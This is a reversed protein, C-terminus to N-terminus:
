PTSSSESPACRVKETSMYGGNLLGPDTLADWVPTTRSAIALAARQKASDCLFTGFQCSTVHFMLSMLYRSNFEFATPQQQTLQWVAFQHGFALWEKEILLRFGACTRYKSDLMLQALATVQPTPHSMLGSIRHPARIRVMQAVRASAKLITRLMDLWTSSDLDSENPLQVMFSKLAARVVHINEIGAFSVKAMRYTLITHEYGKGTAHNLEANIRPRCDVIQLREGSPNADVIAKWCLVPLRRHSRFDAARQLQDDSMSAPVALLPPYSSCLEFKLNCSCIRWSSDATRIGMRRYEAVLDAGDAAAARFLHMSDSSSRTSCDSISERMVVAASGRGPSIQQRASEGPTLELMTGVQSFALSRRVDARLDSKKKPPFLTALHLAAVLPGTCEALILLRFQPYAAYKLM